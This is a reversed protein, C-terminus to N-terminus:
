AAPLPMQTLSEMRHQTFRLIDGDTLGEGPALWTIAGDSGIERSRKLFRIQSIRRSTQPHLAALGIEIMWAEYPAFLTDAREPSMCINIGYHETAVSPYNIGDFEQITFLLDALAITPKYLHEDGPGVPRTLVDGLYDDVLLWKKYNAEGLRSRFNQSNRFFDESTFHKVEHAASRELGIFALNELSEVNGSRTRAVLVTLINRASPRVEYMATHPMSSAYFRVQGATNLRSPKTVFEKPPYWLQSAHSFEQNPENARARYVGTLELQRLQLPHQDM